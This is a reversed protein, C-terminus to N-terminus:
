GAERSAGRRAGAAPADPLHRQGAV